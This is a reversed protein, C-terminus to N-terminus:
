RHRPASVNGHVTQHIHKVHISYIFTHVTATGATIVSAISIGTGTCVSIGHSSLTICAATIIGALTYLLYYFFYSSLLFAYIM